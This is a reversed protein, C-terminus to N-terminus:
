HRVRKMNILIPSGTMPDPILDCEVGYLERVLEKTMVEKPSGQTIIEGKKMAIIHDSYRCASPLDHVVMALTKGQRSLHRILEFVEIQHGLDLASTPEDLLLLPTEQAISMAIWARQRQGGSLTDLLRDKLGELDAANLAYNIAQQDDMAWQKLLSQHPHRGFRILEEITIGDPALTDQPLLALRRAVEKSPLTHIDKGDLLVVGASPSHVRSLGNLLTSKGCGNPGVIATVKGEPLSVNLNEIISTKGHKLTLQEAGLRTLSTTEHIHKPHKLSTATM